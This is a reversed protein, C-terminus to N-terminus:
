AQVGHKDPDIGLQRFGGNLFAMQTLIQLLLNKFHVSRQSMNGPLFDSMPISIDTDISM